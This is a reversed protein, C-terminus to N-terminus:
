GKTAWELYIVIDDAYYSHPVFLLGVKWRLHYADEQSECIM